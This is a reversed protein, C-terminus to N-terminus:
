LDQLFARITAWVNHDYLDSHGAEKFLVLKKPEHAAEFLARGQSVPITTDREGHVILVPRRVGRIHDISRYQDTLILNLPLFWWTRRGVDVTSTFPAELVLAKAERQKAIQIAVATGLSEGYLVIDKPEYGRRRLWDYAAIGDAVNHTETPRGESGGFGRYNMLLLGYGDRQFSRIKDARSSPSGANGTFYLLTPRGSAAAMLWAVLKTRDAAELEVEEVGRLGVEAPAARVPNPAYIFHRNILVGGLCVVLYLGALWLLINMMSNRDSAGPALLLM